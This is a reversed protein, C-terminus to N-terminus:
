DGSTLLDSRNNGSKVARLGTNLAPTESIRGIHDILIRGVEQSDMNLVVTQQAQESGLIKQLPMLIQDAFQQPTLNSHKQQYNLYNNLENLTLKDDKGGRFNAAERMHYFGQREDTTGGSKLESLNKADSFDYINEDKDISLTSGVSRLADNLQEEKSDSFLGVLSRSQRGAMDSGFVFDLAKLPMGLTYEVYKETLKRGAEQGGASRVISSKNEELRAAEALDEINGSKKLKQIKADVETKADDMRKSIDMGFLEAIAVAMATAIEMFIEKITPAAIKWTAKLVKVFQEGITKWPIVKGLLEGFKGVIRPIAGEFSRTLGGAISIQGGFLYLKLDEFKAILDKKLIKWAPVSLGLFNAIVKNDISKGLGGPNNIFDMVGELMNVVGKILSPGALAFAKLLYGTIKGAIKTVQGLPGKGGVLGKLTFVDRITKEWKQSAKNWAAQNTLGSTLDKVFEGLNKIINNAMQKFSKVNFTNNIDDLIEKFPAVINALDKKNVRLGSEYFNEMTKSISTYAKKLPTSYLLTKALGDTFATFFDKKDMTKQVEAVASKIAKMAKIQREEPKQDNMLKKIEEFSKGMTRYNMVTKLAEVSMGTHTAMLSKEHRNLDDFSRGTAHMASRFMDVIEMPNEARILQLADINMGFTQSLLAASNAADEFTGFKNFVAALDKMEVGMQTARAAVGMLTPESLHGFNIIDKRLQFFNKSLLKRNVGFEKSAADSAEYMRTMTVFFHEGNKISERVVYNLDDGQMAMGRTMKTIFEISKGSKTTSDAFVDAFLGMDAINKTVDAVMKAAGAAGYGFLKTMTSNVSQFSLLSGRAINGLRVFASGGNSAMDFLEKTNEVAQGIVEVLEKRLENGLEAVRKAITTPLTLVFKITKATASALSTVAGIVSKTIAAGISFIGMTVTAIVAAVAMFAKLIGKVAINLKKMAGQAKQLAKFWGITANKANVVSKYVKDLGFKKAAKSFIKNTSDDIFKFSGKIKGMLSDADNFTKVAAEAGAVFDKMHEDASKIEEKARELNGALSNVASMNANGFDSSFRTGSKQMSKLSDRIDVLARLMDDTNSM